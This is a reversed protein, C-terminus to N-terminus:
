VREEEGWIDFVSWFVLLVDFGGLLCKLVLGFVDSKEVMEIVDLDSKFIGLVVRWFVRIFQWCIETIGWFVRLLCRLM